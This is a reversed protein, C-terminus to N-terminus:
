GAQSPNLKHLRGSGHTAPDLQLELAPETLKGGGATLGLMEFRYLIRYDYIGFFTDDFNRM